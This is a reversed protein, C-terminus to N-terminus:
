REIESTTHKEQSIAEVLEKIRMLRGINWSTISTYSSDIFKEDLIKTIQGPLLALQIADNIM